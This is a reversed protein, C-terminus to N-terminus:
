RFDRVQQSLGWAPWLNEGPANPNGQHFFRSFDAIMERHLRERDAENEPAWAFATPHNREPFNGFLLPLDIGHFAGLLDAWPSPINRWSFRSRYVTTYLAAQNALHSSVLELDLNSKVVSARFAPFLLPDMFDALKAEPGNALQWYEQESLKGLGFLLFYSAEDATNELLLPIRPFNGFALGELGASPLVVGDSIHQVQALSPNSVITSAPLGRLFERLWTKGRKSLVERLSEEIGSAKLWEEVRAEAKEEAVLKPFANPLGSLCAMRSFKNAALPSQLLGWANICGASQGMVTIRNPDIGFAAANERVWDLARILDLTTFNGSDDLPEGEHLAPLYLAGLAGLRYNASVVVVDAELALRAGDYLPDGAHGKSNSGGHIWFVLPRNKKQSPKWLNLYLCDESGIAKGFEAPNSTAFMNGIQACPPAASQARKVGRWGEPPRPAKWRLKGIPPAAYSLGLFSEVGKGALGRVIGEKITLDISGALASSSCILFVLFAMMLKGNELIRM